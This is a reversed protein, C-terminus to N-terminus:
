TQLSLISVGKDYYTRVLLKIYILSLVICLTVRGYQSFVLTHTSVKSACTETGLCGHHCASSYHSCKTPQETGGATQLYARITLV